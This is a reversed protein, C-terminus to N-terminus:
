KGNTSVVRKDLGELARALQPDSEADPPAPV